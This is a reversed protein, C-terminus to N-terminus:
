DLDGRRKRALQAAGIDRRSLVLAGTSVQCAICPIFVHQHRDVPRDHVFRDPQGCPIAQAPVIGDM